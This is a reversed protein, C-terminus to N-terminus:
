FTLVDELLSVSVVQAARVLVRRRSARVGHKAAEMVYKEKTASGAAMDHVDAEALALADADAAELTGIYVFTSDTDVVVLRGVWEAFPPAASM